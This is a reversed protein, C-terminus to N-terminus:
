CLYSNMKTLIANQNPHVNKNIYYHEIRGDEATGQFSEMNNLLIYSILGLLLIVVAIYLYTQKSNMNISYYLINKLISPKIIM